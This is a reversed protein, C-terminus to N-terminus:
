IWGAQLAAYRAAGLLAAMPNLIVRVPMAELLPRMRGKATFAEVFLPGALRDIIKPAIGGGIYVGGTTMFKLAANGTEAGCLSIFLDLAQVCLECENRLAFASIVSSPDETAMAAVVAPTERGRGTDRLFEYLALLGPGSVIREYSVREYRGLLYKLLDIELDNRPGFDTHGGECAFPHHRTGDWYLGAEGLGTGPSVVAANGAADPAGPKILRFDGPELAAIGYANAELDNILHAQALGLARGVDIADIIWPLNSTHVRGGRVPGAVGFCATTVPLSTTAAFEAAIPALGPYDASAYTHQAAARLTGNVLDFCALRASTGGIDGALIM